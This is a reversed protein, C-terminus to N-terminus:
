SGNEKRHETIADWPRQFGADDPRPTAWILECEDLDALDVGPRNDPAAPVTDTARDQDLVDHLTRYARRLQLACCGAGLAALVIVTYMQPVTM